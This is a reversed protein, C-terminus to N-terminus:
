NEELRRTLNLVRRIEVENKSDKYFEYFDDIGLIDRSNDVLIEDSEHGEPDLIVADVDEGLCIRALPIINDRQWTLAGSSPTGENVAIDVIEKMNSIFAATFRRTVTARILRRFPRTNWYHTYAYAYLPYRTFFIPILFRCTAVTKQNREATFFYRKHCQEQIVVIHLPSPM